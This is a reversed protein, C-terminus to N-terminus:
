LDKEQTYYKDSCQLINMLLQIRYPILFFTFFFVRVCQLRYLRWYKVIM